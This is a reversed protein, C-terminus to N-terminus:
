DSDQVFNLGTLRGLWSANQGAGTQRALQVATTAVEREEFLASADNRRLRELQHSYNRKRALKALTHLTTMVQIYNRREVIDEARFLKGKKIGLEECAKLFARINPLRHQKHRYQTVVSPNPICGQDRLCILVPVIENILKCLIVGDALYDQFADTDTPVDEKFVKAIWNRAERQRLLFSKVSTRLRRLNRRNSPMNSRQSLFSDSELETSSVVM